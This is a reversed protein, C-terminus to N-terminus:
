RAHGTEHLLLDSLKRGLTELWSTSCSCESPVTVVDYRTDADNVPYQEGGDDPHRRQAAERALNVSRAIVFKKEETKYEVIEDGAAGGSWPREHQTLLALSFHLPNGRRSNPM